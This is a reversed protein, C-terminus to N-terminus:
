QPVPGLAARLPAVYNDVDCTCTGPCPHTPLTGGPLASVKGDILALIAEQDDHQGKPWTCGKKCCWDAHNADWREVLALVREALSPPRPGAPRHDGSM